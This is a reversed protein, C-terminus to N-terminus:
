QLQLNTFGLNSDIDAVPLWGGIIISDFDPTCNTSLGAYSALCGIVNRNSDSYAIEIKLPRNALTVVCQDLKSKKTCSFEHGSIYLPQSSQGIRAGAISGGIPMPAHFVLLFSLWCVLLFLFGIAFNLIFRAKRRM